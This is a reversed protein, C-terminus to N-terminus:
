PNNEYRVIHDLLTSGPFTDGGISIGEYIGDTTRALINFMENMIGASKSVLGVSGPRYLKAKIINENM